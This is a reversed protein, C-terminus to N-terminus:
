NAWGGSSILLLNLQHGLTTTILVNTQAPQDSVPKVTVLEPERESHEALFNEPDGVVVSNVPEPMRISTAIRPAVRLVVVKDDLSSRALIVPEVQAQAPESAPAAAPPKTSPAARTAARQQANISFTGLLLALACPVRYIM